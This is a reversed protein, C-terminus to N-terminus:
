GLPIEVLNQVVGCLVVMRSSEAWGAWFVGYIVSFMATNPAIGLAIVLVVACTFAPNKLLRHLSYLLDQWFRDM